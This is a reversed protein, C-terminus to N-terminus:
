EGLDTITLTYPATAGQYGSVVIAAPGAYEFSENNTSSYSGVPDGDEMLVTNNVLDWVYTDLDGTAHSFLLDLRWNHALNVQYFDLSDTCIGGTFSCVGEVFCGEPITARTEATDNDEYTEEELATCNAPPPECNAEDIDELIDVYDLIFASLSQDAVVEMDSRRVVFGTPVGELSPMNYIASMTPQTSGDGVCIGEERAGERDCYLRAAVNSAPGGFRNQADVFVILGGAANIAAANNEIMDIYGPCYGCGEATVIFVLAVYDDYEESCFFETLRFDFDEDEGWTAGEWYLPPMPHGCQILGSSTPYPCEEVPEEEAQDPEEVTDPVATDEVPEEVSGDDSQDLTVDGADPTTVDDDDDSCATVLFLGAVLLFLGLQKM